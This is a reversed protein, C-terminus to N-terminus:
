KIIVKAKIFDENKVNDDFDIKRKREWHECKMVSVYMLYGSKEKEREDCLFLSALPINMEDSNPSTPPFHELKM